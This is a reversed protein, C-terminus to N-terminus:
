LRYSYIYRCCNVKKDKFVAGTKFNNLYIRSVDKASWIKNVRFLIHKQNKRFPSSNKLCIQHVLIYLYLICFRLNTFSHLRYNCKTENSKMEDENLKTYLDSLIRKKKNRLNKTIYQRKMTKRMRFQKAQQEFWLM